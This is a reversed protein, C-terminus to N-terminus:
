QAASLLDERRLVVFENGTHEQPFRATERFGLALCLRQARRNFGAVTVRFVIPSHERAAFELVARTFAVGLGRGVLDPRMGLGVDLADDAYDYGAVRADEGFSCFGVLEGHEDSAAHVRYEPRLLTEFGEPDGDYLSYVGEYRWAAITRAQDREIPTFRYRMASM